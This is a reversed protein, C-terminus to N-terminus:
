DGGIFLEDVEDLQPPEAAPAPSSAPARLAHATRAFVQAPGGGPPSLARGAAILKEVPVDVIASLADLVRRSVGQPPLTGTEMEHYYDGVRDRQASVGLADALRAVLATRTIRAHHRARPLVTTWSEEPPLRADVAAAVRQTLPDQEFRAFDEDSYPRGPAAALFAEILSELERRDVGGLQEFYPRPDAREGARHAARFRDFLDDVSPM